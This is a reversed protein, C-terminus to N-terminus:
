TAGPIVKASRLQRKRVNHPVGRWVRHLIRSIAHPSVDFHAFTYGRSEFRERIRVALRSLSRSSLRYKLDFYTVNESPAMMFPLPHSPNWAIVITPRDTPLDLSPGSTLVVLAAGLISDIEVTMTNGVMQKNRVVAHPVELLIELIHAFESEDRGELAM